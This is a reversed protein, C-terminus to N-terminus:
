RPDPLDLRVGPTSLTGRLTVQNLEADVPVDFPIVGAVTDGPEIENLLTPNRDNLFVAAQEAVAYAEGNADHIRLVESNFLEPERGKNTVNVDLLCFQGGPRQELGEPGISSVGCRLGTVDFRFGSVQSVGSVPGDPLVAPPPPTTVVAWVGFVVLAASVVIGGAIWLRARWRLAPDAGDEHSPAHRVPPTRHPAYTM